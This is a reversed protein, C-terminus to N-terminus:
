ISLYNLNFISSLHRFSVPLKRANPSTSHSENHQAFFFKSDKSSLGRLPADNPSYRVVYKQPGILSKSLNLQEGENSSRLFPFDFPTEKACACASFTQVHALRFLARLEDTKHFNRCININITHPFMVALATGPESRSHFPSADDGGDGGTAPRIERAGYDFVSGYFRLFRLFVAGLPGGQPEWNLSNGLGLGLGEQVSPLVNKEKASFESNKMPSLNNLEQISPLVCKEKSSFEDNKMSSLYKLQLFKEEESGTYRRKFQVLEPHPPSFLSRRNNKLKLSDKSKLTELLNKPPALVRKSELKLHQLFAVIMLFLALSTLGGNMPQDLRASFLLSRLVMYLPVSVPYAESFHKVISEKSPIRANVYLRFIIEVVQFRWKESMKLKLIVINKKEFLELLSFNEQDYKLKNAFESIKALSALHKPPLVSFNIDSWPLALGVELSGSLQFEVDSGFYGSIEERLISEIEKALLKFAKQFNTVNIYFKEIESSLKSTVKEVDTNFANASEEKDKTNMGTSSTLSDNKKFILYKIRSNKMKSVAYKLEKQQSELKISRLEIESLKNRFDEVEFRLKEIEFENRNPRHFSLETREKKACGERCELTKTAFKNIDNSFKCLFGLRKGELNDLMWCFEHAGMKSSYERVCLGDRDRAGPSAGHAILANLIAYSWKRESLVYYFLCDRALADREGGREGTALLACILRPHGTQCAVMLRTPAHTERLQGAIRATTSLALRFASEFHAMDASARRLVVFLQSLSQPPDADSSDSPRQTARASERPKSYLRPNM